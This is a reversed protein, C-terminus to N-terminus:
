HRPAQCLAAQAGACPNHDVPEMEQTGNQDHRLKSITSYILARMRNIQGMPRTEPHSHWPNMSINECFNNQPDSTIGTQVPLTLTAVKYAPSTLNSWPLRPDEILNTQPAMNPRVYFEFCGPAAALSAVLRQSLFNLPSNKPPLAVTQFQCPKAFFRMSKPGLKYPVSSHYTQYLPHALQIRAEFIRKASKPHTIGYWVLHANSGSIAEHLDQYDAGDKSFFEEASIMVFDQSGSPSGAVNMLKVAMGRVDKELDHQKNGDPAGNSFRIWAQYEHPPGAFVGVRLAPPLDKADVQFNAKVCGHARPHADRRTLDDRSSRKALMNLTTQLIEDAQKDNTATWVEGQEVPPLKPMLSAVKRDLTRAPGSCACLLILSLTLLPKSM